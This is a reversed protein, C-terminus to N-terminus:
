IKNKEVKVCKGETSKKTIENNNSYILTETFEGSIRDVHLIYSDEYSTKPNENKSYNSSVSIDDKRVFVLRSIKVEILSGNLNSNTKRNDEYIEPNSDTNFVWVTEKESSKDQKEVLKEEYTFKYTRTVKNKETPSFSETIRNKSNITQVGNCILTITKENTSCASILFLFGLFILINRISSKRGFFILSFFCPYYKKM